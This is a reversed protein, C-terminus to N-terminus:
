LLLAHHVLIRALNVRLREVGIKRASIHCVSSIFALSVMEFLDLVCKSCCKGHKRSDAVVPPKTTDASAATRVSATSSSRSITTSSTAVKSTVSLSIGNVGANSPRISSQRSAV